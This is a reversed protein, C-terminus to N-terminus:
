SEGETGNVTNVDIHLHPGTSIGSNGAYGLLTTYTVNDEVVVEPTDNM